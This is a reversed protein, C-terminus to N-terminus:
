LIVWIAINYYIMIGTVDILTAILPSSIVAPDFKLKAIIMPLLSGIINAWLILVVMTLSVIIALDMVDEGQYLGHLYTIIAFILGLVSGIIIEKLLVRLWDKTRVEGIALSRIILTSTQTGSNGATGLLLPIFSALSVLALTVEKYNDIASATLFNVLVLALLWPFRKVILKWLSATIYPQEVPNVAALKQIDETAEEESVELVDDITVIGLLIGNSDLVPLAFMDYKEMYRVAVEQDDFASVSIYNYDMLESIPKDEESLILDRLLIDDVFNGNKNVVYVRYITESAKGYKRIHSIAEKVNYSEKLEVFDPTMLRGCSDTPYGLLWSAEKLDEANLMNLLYKTAKAPMEELVSTRDDPSLDALLIKTEKDTLVELLYERQYIDMEAFVDAAVDRNLVRYLLVKEKDNLEELLDVIEAAPWSSIGEKLTSWDKSELLQTIEPLLLEKLM